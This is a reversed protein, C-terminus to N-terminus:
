TAETVDQRAAALRDLERLVASALVMASGPRDHLIEWARNLTVSVEQLSTRM